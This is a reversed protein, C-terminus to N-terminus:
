RLSESQAHGVLHHDHEMASASAETVLHCGVIQLHEQLYHLCLVADLDEVTLKGAGREKGRFSLVIEGCHFARDVHSKDVPLYDQVSNPFDKGLHKSFVRGIQPEMLHVVNGMIRCLKFSMNDIAPLLPQQNMAFPSGPREPRAGLPQWRDIAFAPLRHNDTSAHLRTGVEKSANIDPSWDNKLVAWPDPLVMLRCLAFFINWPM